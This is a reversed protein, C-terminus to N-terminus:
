GPTECFWRRLCPRARGNGMFSFKGVKYNRGQEKLSEETEGVNSVEPHTYIVGPICRLECPWTKRGFGRRLGHRRRRRTPWCRATSPTASAYIGKVNTKCHDDTKIQGRPSIEVGLGELGLGDTYPKRGTAVLVIDAEIM